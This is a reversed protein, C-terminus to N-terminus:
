IPEAEGAEDAAKESDLKVKTGTPRQVTKEAIIREAEDKANKSLTYKKAKLMETLITVLADIGYSAELTRAANELEDVYVKNDTKMAEEMMTKLEARAEKVPDTPKPLEKKLSDLAKKGGATYESFEASVAIMAQRAMEPEYKKSLEKFTDDIEKASIKGQSQSEPGVAGELLYLADLQAEEDKTLQEEKLFKVFMQTIPTMTMVYSDIVKNFGERAEEQGVANIIDSVITDLEHVDIKFDNSFAENLKEEFMKAGKGALPKEPGTTGGLGKIYEATEAPLDTMEKTVAVLANEAVKQGFKEAVRKVAGQAEGVTLEYDLTAGDLLSAITAEAEPNSQPYKQTLEEIYKQAGTEMLEGYKESLEIAAAIAEEEGFQEGVKEIARMLEGLSIVEEGAGSAGDLLRDMESAASGEEAPTWADDAPVEGMEMTDVPENGHPGDHAPTVPIQSPDMATGGMLADFDIGMKALEEASIPLNEMSPQSSAQQSVPPTNLKM